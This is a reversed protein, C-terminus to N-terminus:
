EEHMFSFIMAVWHNRTADDFQDQDDILTVSRVNVSGMTGKFNDLLERVVDALAKADVYSESFCGVQIRAKALGPGDFSGIRSGGSRVIVIRDNKHEGQPAVVPYVRTSVLASVTPAAKLYTILDTEITM